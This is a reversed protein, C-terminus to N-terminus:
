GSITSAPTCTRSTSRSRCTASRRWRPGAPLRERTTASPRASSSASRGSTRVRRRSSTRSSARSSRTPTRARASGSLARRGPLGREFGLQHQGQGLQLHLLGAAALQQQLAQPLDPRRGSLRAQRRQADRDRLEIRSERRLRLLRPRAVAVAPRRDSWRYDTTGNVSTAFLALDYDELIDRTRRNTYATELSM